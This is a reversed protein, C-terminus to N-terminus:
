NQSPDFELFETPHIIRLRQENFVSAVKKTLQLLPADPTIFLTNRDRSRAYLYCSVINRRDHSGIGSTVKELQQFTNTEQALFRIVEDKDHIPSFRQLFRDYERCIIDPIEAVVRLLGKRHEASEILNLLGYVRTELFSYFGRYHSDATLMQRETRVLEHPNAGEKTQEKIRELITKIRSYLDTIKHVAVERVEVDITQPKIGLYIGFRNTNIKNLVAEALPKTPENFIISLPLCCDLAVAVPKARAGAFFHTLDKTPM